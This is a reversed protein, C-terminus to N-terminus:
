VARDPIAMRFTTGPVDELLVLTGGHAVVLEHAIALGLGSGGRRTSGQFAQFLHARALAPVGPGNDSCDITVVTGSREGAIRILGRGAVDQAELAQVANRVLNSIVRYLQDRDADIKLADAVEVRWDIRGGDPLGLGDGVEMVLPKLAILERKPTAEAAKGFKLTDNCFNIARDLSAILKPAFRQVSPDPLAILRDSLLQVNALMNRLDHNIKSVATGLAALRSKHALLQTLEGQMHALEREATGIEDKRSSPVMIRSADEPNESFRLMNQTIRQMPRVLSANLAFYVLAATIVSILASLGLVNLGYRLMAQKLQEEPIVIEVFSEPAMNPEGIVLIMRNGTHTMVGVADSILGFRQSIDSWLGTPRVSQRLDFTADITGEMEPPLVSVRQNNRKVAVAKVQATRLLQSRLNDPITGGPFAEAALSALQAATLRDMLWNVRYNAVSPVFILVEALMVFLLTLGLLKGSLSSALWGASRLGALVHRERAKLWDRWGSGPLSQETDRPM